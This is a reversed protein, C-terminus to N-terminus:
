WRKFTNGQWSGIAATRLDIMDDDGYVADKDNFGFVIFAPYITALILSLPRLGKRISTFEFELIWQKLVVQM